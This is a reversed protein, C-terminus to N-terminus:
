ARPLLAEFRERPLAEHFLYGQMQDCSLERMLTAQAENEVGEAVVKFHLAHALSIISAVITKREASGPM